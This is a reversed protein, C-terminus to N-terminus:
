KKLPITVEVPTISEPPFNITNLIAPLDKYDATFKITVTITETTDIVTSPTVNFNASYLHTLPTSYNKITSPNNSNIDAIINNRANNDSSLSIDRAITGAARNYQLYDMFFIGGYIIAFCMVLFLPIVFAFEVISQGKINRTTM